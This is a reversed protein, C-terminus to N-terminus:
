AGSSTIGLCMDAYSCASCATGHQRMSIQAHLRERDMRRVECLEMGTGM